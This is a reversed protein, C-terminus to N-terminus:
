ATDSGKKRREVKRNNALVPLDLSIGMRYAWTKFGSPTLELLMAMEKGSTVGDDLLRYFETQRAEDQEKNRQDITYPTLGLTKFDHRIMIETASIQYKNKLIEQIEKVLLKQKAYQSVLSRRRQVQPSAFRLGRGVGSNPLSKDLVLRQGDWKYGYSTKGQPIKQHRDTNLAAEIARREEATIKDVM